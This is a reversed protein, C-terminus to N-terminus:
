PVLGLAVVLEVLEGVRIDRWFIDHQSLKVALSPPMKSSTAFRAATTQRRAPQVKPSPLRLLGMMHELWAREREVQAAERQAEQEATTAYRAALYAAPDVGARVPEDPPTVMILPVPPPTTARPPPVPIGLTDGVEGALLGVLSTLRLKRWAPEREDLAQVLLPHMQEICWSSASQQLQEVTRLTATPDAQLYLRAQAHWAHRSRQLLDHSANSRGRPSPSPTPSPGPPPSTPRPRQVGRRNPDVLWVPAPGFNEGWPQPNQAKEGAEDLQIQPRHRWAEPKAPLLPKNLPTCTM